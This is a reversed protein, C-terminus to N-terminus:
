SCASGNLRFLEPAPNAGGASTGRLGILLSKGPKLQDGGALTVTAGAQSARAGQAAEVRQGGVFAFTLEWGKLTAPGTNRVEVAAVFGTGSPLATYHVHCANARPAAEGNDQDAVFSAAWALTSMWNIAIENTAYSQADDISCWQPRSECGALKDAATSDWTSAYSNPGGGISGPPPPPLDDDISNAFWRHYQRHTDVEGYGTIYSRNLANRGLLYDMGSLVADRFKMDNTLDYATAIVQLNNLVLGNSGWDFANGPPAYALSWPSATVNALYRRAGDVVSRRVRDRDPLANPVTALELRALQARQQWDFGTAVWVDAAHLPSARVADAFRKEGTTLYLEAAAWYFEDTVNTDDYPGGGADGGGPAYLAPNALAADYAKRAARLARTAFAKDYPAYLRAAQAATAALNLTAATSPPHLYRTKDGASPLMPYGAWSEDHMKHHAMGALPKGDPVQMKLIFDLEWRAEDLIDPVGNGREPLRVTGDGLKDAQASRATKTREFASMLQYAAIGGNVVYKGFDGADYWGGTVDLAYDCTGPLCAVSLDGKNPAVGVHGAPRAYGPAVSDKIEIGSRQPYFASLTDARLKDYAAPSIDFPHSTEGDAVLTFGTGAKTYASFSITHTAVGSSADVGAPKSRGRHVVKGKADRLEFAIGAPRDTVLTANKPGHPLYGVQNVRVRPGTDPVYPPKVVGGVLSVNDFCFTADEDDGGLQFAFQGSPNTEQATFFFEYATPTAGIPEEPRAGLSELYTTANQVLIRPKLPVTSHATFTLRYDEGATLNLHDRGVISDWPNVLGGPVPVCAEGNVISLPSNGTSWWEGVGDDFNGDPIQEVPDAHAPVGVGVGAATLAM